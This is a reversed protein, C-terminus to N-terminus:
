GLEYQVRYKGNQFFYNYIELGTILLCEIGLVTWFLTKGYGLYKSLINGLLWHTCLIVLTHKGFIGILGSGPIMALHRCIEILALTTCIASLLYLGPVCIDGNGVTVYRWSLVANKRGIKYGIQLLVPILWWPLHFEIKKMLYGTIFFPLLVIMGKFRFYDHVGNFLTIFLVLVVAVVDAVVLKRVTDLLPLVCISFVLIWWFSLLYWTPLNSNLNDGIIVGHIFQSITRNDLQLTRNIGYGIGNWVAYPMLIKRMKEWLQTTKRSSKTTTLLGSIYVFFPMHFSYIWCYFSDMNYETYYLHGYMMLIIAIGKAIDLSKDREM